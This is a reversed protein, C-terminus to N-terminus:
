RTDTGDNFIGTPHCGRGAAAATREIGQLYPVNTTNPPYSVAEAFGQNILTADVFIDGVYIHRLLRGFRDTNTQDRVLTVTQGEVLVRNADVAPQYCTEDREPTNIGIYRVRYGVGDISVDITDGDIVNTVVAQEGDAPNGRVILSGTDGPVTDGGSGAPPAVDVTCAIVGIGLAAAALLPRVWQLPRVLDFLTHKLSTHTM